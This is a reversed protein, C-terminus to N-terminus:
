AKLYPYLGGIGGAWATSDFGAPLGNNQLQATTLAAMGGSWGNANDGIAATRGTTEVDFASDLANGGAVNRGILGGVGVVGRVAGTAYSQS